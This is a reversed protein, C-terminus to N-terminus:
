CGKFKNSTCKRALEQAEAIQHATMLKELSDRLGIYDKREKGDANSAAINYWMHSLVYDQPVGQGFVYMFGLNYQATADGQEASLRYWKLAEKYDQSVGEGEQYAMGLCLQAKADGREALLSALKFRKSADSLSDAIAQGALTFLCVCVLFLQIPVKFKFGTLRM